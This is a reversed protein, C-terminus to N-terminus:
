ESPQASSVRYFLVEPSDFTGIIHMRASSFQSLENNLALETVYIAAAAQPSVGALLAVLPFTKSLPVTLNLDVDLQETLLDADGTFRFATSPGEIVLERGVRAFGRDFLIEGALTDFSIGDALLDSFDLAVRQIIRSLNLLGVLKVGELEGVDLIAGDRLDIDVTGKMERYNFFSPSGSWSLDFEVDGRDTELLLPQSWTKLIDQVDGIAVDGSFRSLHKGDQYRWTLEGQLEAGAMRGQLNEAVMEGASSKLSARWSGLDKDNWILNNVQISMAPIEDPLHQALPDEPVQGDTIQATRLNLWQFDAFMEGPGSPISVQGEGEEASFGALWGQDNQLLQVTAQHWEKALYWLKNSTLNIEAIQQSFSEADAEPQAQIREGYAQIATWWADIDVEDIDLDFYMGPEDRVNLPQRYAVSGRQLQNNADFESFAQLESGIRSYFHKRGNGDIQIDLQMPTAQSATKALPEPLALEFGVLDSVLRIDTSDSDIKISTHHSVSAESSAFLPDGYRVGWFRLPTVGEIDVQLNMQDGSGATQLSIQQREGQHVASLGSSSLGQQLSYTLEGEVDSFVLSLDALEAENGAFGTNATLTLAEPQSLPLSLNLDFQVDDEIFLQDLRDGLYQRVPGQKLFSLFGAAPLESAATASLEGTKFDINLSLDAFTLGRMSVPQENRITLRNHGLLVSGNFHEILPWGDLYRISADAVDASVFFQKESKSELAFAALFDLKVNAFEGGQVAKDIEDAIAANVLHNRALHRIWLADAQAATLSVEVTKERGAERNAQSPARSYWSVGVPLPDTGEGDLVKPDLLLEANGDVFTGYESVRQWNLVGSQIEASHIQDYLSTLKLASQAASFAIQGGQSDMSLTGAIGDLGPVQNSPSMSFAALEAKLGLSEPSKINVQLRGNEVFGRPSIRKWFGTSDDKAIWQGVLEAPLADWQLQLQDGELSFLATTDVVAESNQESYLRFSGTTEAASNDAGAELSVQRFSLPEVQGALEISEANVRASASRWRYRDFNLWYEGSMRLGTINESLASLWPSLEVAGHKIHLRNLQGPELTTELQLEVPVTLKQQSLTASAVLSNVLQDGALRGQELNIDFEPFNDPTVKLRVNEFAVHQQRQLLQLVSSISLGGGRSAEARALGNIQWGLESQTLAANLGNLEFRIFSLGGRSISEYLGPALTLEEVFFEGGLEVDRLTLVPNFKLWSGQLSGVEVETNLQSSLWQELEPQLREVYPFFQRGLALYAAFLLIWFALVKFVANRVVPWFGSSTM